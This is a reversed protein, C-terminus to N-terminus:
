IRKESAVAGEYAIQCWRRLDVRGGFGVGGFDVWTEGIEHRVAAGEALAGPISGKPLRFVLASMGHAVAFITRQMTYLAIYAYAHLDPCYRGAGRLGEASRTLLEAVDGHASLNPHREVFTVIEENGPVRFKEDITWPM